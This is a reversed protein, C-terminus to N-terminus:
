QEEEEVPYYLEEALMADVEGELRKSERLWQPDRTKFYNKQAQRMERTKAVLRRHREEQTLKQTM